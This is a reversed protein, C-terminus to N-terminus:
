APVPVLRPARLAHAHAMAIALADTADDPEPPTPLDLLMQMMRQVQSKGAHGRGSVAKKVHTASYESVPVGGAAAALLIVGRVHGMLIATAPHAYHSYLAELAVCDPRTMRLLDAMGDHIAQIRTALADEPSSRFVGTTVLRMRPGEVELVGYGTCQLGPDVGCIRM